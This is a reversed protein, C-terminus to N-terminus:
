ETAIAALVDLRAARRAPWSAAALGLIGSLVLFVGLTSVPVVIDVIGQEKLSAALAVGLGTGVLVGIIAGFLALIVAESRIMSRVQRRRMGVARLLGIEHTREFVSLMLTNVIGIMAIVIALALLVYILGLLQNVQAQQSEEFAARTQIKLNPYAHIARTLAADTGAAGSTRVLVAVPLPNAFHQLFFTGGALYSGLLANPKFVGGVRMTSRGTLAFTVPVISGVGLKRSNATTTDILLQGSNLASSGAGADMRLITTKTLDKASIATMSSVAGKAVFRGTYVTSVSTVGPVKAVTPGVAASFGFAGLTSPTIIYDASIANDVSSTASKSVSAGFVAITSVLALGVMLASSTQATRKPSRMSNERGLRGAIGFLAALPRGLVSSMPRAVVPALMGIGLFVAVAGVGVLQIAPKTLGLVLTALGLVGVVSGITIRRRLSEVQDSQHDGLAAVPPIRVARRAPSIASVVTVGVGVVLAAIVTRGQFVLPGTPLTIGFAQLLAELGIAAVVGLGLGILSAVLGVLTAELLVSRFVQRRSAGVIRLLALERTRQGVIISFTNFITFGGVFLAIFAFVLLATSFFGLAQNIASSQEDAVTQGTVVETGSPLVRAIDHRVAAKDAGPSAVVDVADLKGDMGFAHQAAPLAFAALTAGALNDATGFRVIGSITFTEPPGILLIKVRDGVAFHYKTATGRDMAVDGPLTPARGASLRLAALQPHTNYSVGITPAGGTTVAKGDPAVFQAYGTVTGEAISVGPVQRVQALVSDPVAKRVSGIGSSDTFAAKGRVEFDVNQYIHGFLSTFTSHLTDTLVLTGSIFTVGLVIAVATLALRLKHALLGSVTVKWM